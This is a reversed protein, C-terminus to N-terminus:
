KQTVANFTSSKIYKLNLCRLPPDDFVKPYSSTLDASVPDGEVVFVEECIHSIRPYELVILHIDYM